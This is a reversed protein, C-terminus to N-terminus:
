NEAKVDINDYSYIGDTINFPFEAYTGVPTNASISINFITSQQQNVNLNTINSSFTNVTVYSSLSNLTANLSMIESHGINVIDVVLDLTEGADLKGNGNGLNSDDIIFNVYDLVPANLIVSVNSSWINGLNDTMTLNFLTSHQDPVYADVQFSFPTSTTIVQSSNILPVNVTNNILTIYPDTTSIVVDVSTADVSGVNELDVTMEILENYDVLSNNNGAADDITNNSYIVYPGTPSIIQVIGQYPQRFQKTIVIDLTGPNSISSLDLNVVGSVDALQADILVGNMSAAVYANEETTVIFSSTGLPTASNHSVILSAPVGIYPMLSPDGMVHYIEWYYQESGGAQTVALNGAHIMQGQTIFWDSQQEGNEHMLCDYVGLETGAYTPNASISGNGVAWWFDENWYTNNSGGIYGVAGKDAARLLAEGFCVNVDFKNSQCCNGIM